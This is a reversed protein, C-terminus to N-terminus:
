LSTWKTNIATNINDSFKDVRGVQLLKHRPPHEQVKEHTRPKQIVQFVEMEKIKWTKDTVSAVNGFPLTEYSTGLNLDINKGYVKLDFKNNASDGFTPGWQEYHTICSTGKKCSIKCPVDIDEGSLVFLFATDSTSNSETYDAHTWSIDSYAGLILGNETEIVTM